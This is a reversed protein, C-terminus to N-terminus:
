REEELEYLIPAATAMPIFQEQAEQKVHPAKQFRTLLGILALLLLAGSIYMYMEMEPYFHLIFVALLLGLVGGSSYILLLVGTASTIHDKRLGDVALTVSTPYITFTFAGLIFTAVLVIMEEEPFFHLALAPLLGILCMGFLVVGRRLSDALWGIPWQALFGGAIVLFMLIPVSYGFDTAFIPTFSYITSLIVGALFSGAVGYPSRRVIEIFAGPLPEHLEPITTRTLSVPVISLVTLLAALIFPVLTTVDVAYLIFQSFALASYISVMYFALVRSRMSESSVVLFWSEVVVFLAAVSLGTVFRIVVWSSASIFLGQLLTTATLLSAFVAFARIHRIRSIVQEFKVAGLLFGGYYAANVYGIVAVDYGEEKLRLTTFTNFFGNALMLLALSIFPAILQTFM